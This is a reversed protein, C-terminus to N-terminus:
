PRESLEPLWSGHFGAPVPHPLEVVAQVSLEAADLVLLEGAAGDDDSVLSLLWGEDEGTGDAAPVFVAEGAYRSGPTAHTHTTHRALDHKAIGEDSVTYLYRNRRGTLTENHTPFEVARDDLQSETVRGTVPDLTWRHLVSPAQHSRPERAGARGNPSATGGINTWSRRFGERDYRVADLVIRGHGDEHANGVHFVYCPDVDYWRVDTSGPKRSMVGLRAGYGDDWRYPMGGRGALELDFVVPLDMWVIHHETIAFDHMMTPGPVDVTRSDLLEGDATVRHYTLYPPAFGTGFLHLEGTVPDEKPHATMATTLRGAFDYPGVTELSPTVWYPLGVECLALVTGAHRIVHTNSPNATLDVTFDERILPHGELERTRVWRNRYWEARGERLRIGHLMGPGIFWHGKDEGPLPNPGNRLYRGDLEPPLSGRVTLDAATHEDPVPAFRGRLYLPPTTDNAM